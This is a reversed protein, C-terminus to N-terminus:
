ATWPPRWQRFARVMADANEVPFSWTYHGHGILGGRYPAFAELLRVSDAEVEEPTGTALTKQIDPSSIVTVRGGCTKAIREIGMLDPQHMNIADFGTDIMDPILDFINGCSHLFIDMGRSHASETM